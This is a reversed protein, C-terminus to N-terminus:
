VHARGIKFMKLYKQTREIHGGIVSDRSEVVDAVTKLIANQLDFATQTKNNVIEELSQNYDKLKTKQKELLLHQDIRKLLLESSFPKTIYDIAGLNLGNVESEPDITSTLFIVPIEATAPNSKLEGIIEYGNMGPIEIDLLILDPVIKELLSFLKAGSPATLIDYKGILTNKTITLNTIDDDVVIITSRSKEM